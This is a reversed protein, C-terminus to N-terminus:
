SIPMNKSPREYIAQLLTFPLSTTFNFPKIPRKCTGLGLLTGSLSPYCETLYPRHHFSGDLFDCRRLGPACEYRLIAFPLSGYKQQTARLQSQSVSRAKRAESDPAFYKYKISTRPKPAPSQSPALTQLTLTATRM